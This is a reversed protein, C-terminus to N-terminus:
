SFAVAWLLSLGGPGALRTRCVVRELAWFLRGWGLILALWGTECM